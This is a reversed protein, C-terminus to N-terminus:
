ISRLGAKALSAFRQFEARVVAKRVVGTLARFIPTRELGNLRAHNIVHKLESVQVPNKPHVSRVAQTSLKHEFLDPPVENGSAWFNLMTRICKECYGCNQDLQKGEWCVRLQDSVETHKSLWDIKETRAFGCGDIVVDLNPTSLLHDTMPTSSWPFFITEYPEGSGLLATTFGRQLMLFCAGLQVSFSHEWEQKLLKSNVSFEILPIQTSSLMRRAREVAGQYEQARDLPIDMGHVLLAAAPKVSNRGAAGQYHRFTSFTGDVGGSFAVISGPEARGSQMEEERSATIRVPSYIRPRWRGWIAQLTEVGKLLKPSVCGDVHLSRGYRMVHFLVALLAHDGHNPDVVCAAFESSVTHELTFEDESNEVSLQWRNVLSQGKDEIGLPALTFDGDRVVEGTQNQFVFLATM